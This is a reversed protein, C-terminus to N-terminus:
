CIAGVAWAMVSDALTPLPRIVSVAVRTSARDLLVGASLMGNVFVAQHRVLVSHQLASIESLVRRSCFHRRRRINGVFYSCIHRLLSLCVRAKHRVTGQKLTRLFPFIFEKAKSAAARRSKHINESNKFGLEKFTHQSDGMPTGITAFNYKHM